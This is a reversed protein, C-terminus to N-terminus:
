VQFFRKVLEKKVRDDTMPLPFFDLVLSRELDNPDYPILDECKLVRKRCCFASSPKIYDDSLSRTRTDNLSM